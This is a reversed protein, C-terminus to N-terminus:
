QGNQAIAQKGNDSNGHERPRFHNASKMTDLEEPKNAAIGIIRYEMTTQHELYSSCHVDPIHDQSAAIKLNLILRSVLVSTVRCPFAVDSIM